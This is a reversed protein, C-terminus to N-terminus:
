CCAGTRVVENNAEAAAFNLTDTSFIIYGATGGLFIAFIAFGNYSMAVLMIIYAASFQVGYFAGRMLQEQLTPVKDGKGQATHKATLMRDYNRAARRVGEILFTILFIGIISFAFGVENTIHWQESIFCSDKIEWNWLMSM